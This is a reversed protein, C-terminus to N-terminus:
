TSVRKPRPSASQSGSSSCSSSSSSESSESSSSGRRRRRRNRPSRGRRAKPRKKKGSVPDKQWHVQSAKKGQAKTSQPYSYSLDRQGQLLRHALSQNSYCVDSLQTLLSDVDRTGSTSSGRRGSPNRTLWKYTELDEVPAPLYSNTRAPTESSRPISPPVAGSSDLPTGPWSSPTKRM